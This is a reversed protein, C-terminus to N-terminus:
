QYDGLVRAPTKLVLMPHFPSNCGIKASNCVALFQLSHFAKRLVRKLPRAFFSDDKTPNAFDTLVMVSLRRVGKSPNEPSAHSSLSLQV